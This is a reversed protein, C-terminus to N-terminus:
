AGAPEPENVPQPPQLRGAASRGLATLTDLFPSQIQEQIERGRATATEAGDAKPLAFRNVLGLLDATVGPLLGHFAALGKAPVSLIPEPEGRRVARVIQRAAREASMSIGPLSASLSFWTFEEERNGRFRANLHGGTRMLGPVVTTVRIGRGSLEARLGESLAVTAFKACSYPLLHPISVKGGISTINVLRGAGRERMQPLVALTPYLVGWFMVSMAQEFEGVTMQEIPGVEIIGANNVLLDVRGYHRTAEEVLWQVQQRDAVDCTVTLVEAGNRELAERARELEDPDRACIALRCGVRAFERALLFGLGRSGGTILAVEGRLDAERLRQFLARGALAVGLGAAALMLRSGVREESPM